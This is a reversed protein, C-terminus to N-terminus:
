GGTESMLSMFLFAGLNVIVVILSQFFGSLDFIWFKVTINMDQVIWNLIMNGIVLFFLSKFLISAFSMILGLPLKGGIFRIHIINFM